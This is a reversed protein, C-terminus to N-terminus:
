SGHVDWHEGKEGQNEPDFVGENIRHHEWHHAGTSGLPVVESPSTNKSSPSSSCIGIPSPSTEGELVQRPLYNKPSPSAFDM